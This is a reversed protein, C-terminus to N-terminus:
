GGRVHEYWVNRDYAWEFFYVGVNVDAVGM